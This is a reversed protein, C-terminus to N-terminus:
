EKPGDQRHEMALTTVRRTLRRIEQVPRHSQGDEKGIQEMAKRLTDRTEKDEVELHIKNLGTSRRVTRLRRIPSDDEDNIDRRLTSLRHLTVDLEKRKQIDAEDTDNKAKQVSRTLGTLFENFAFAPINQRIVEAEM